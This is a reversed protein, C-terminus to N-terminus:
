FSATSRSPLGSIITTGRPGSTSGGAEGESDRRSKGCDMGEESMVM